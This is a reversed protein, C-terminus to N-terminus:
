GRIPHLSEVLKEAQDQDAGDRQRYRDVAEKCASPSILLVVPTAQGHALSGFPDM